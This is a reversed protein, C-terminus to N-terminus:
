IRWPSRAPHVSALLTPGYSRKRTTLTGDARILRPAQSTVEEETEQSKTSGTMANDATIRAEDPRVIGVAKSHDTVAM